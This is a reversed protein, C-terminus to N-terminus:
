LGRNVVEESGTRKQTYKQSWVTTQLPPRGRKRRDLRSIFSSCLTVSPPGQLRLSGCPRKSRTEWSALNGWRHHLGSSTFLCREATSQGKYARQIISFAKARRKASKKLENINWSKEWKGRRGRGSFRQASAQASRPVDGANKPM